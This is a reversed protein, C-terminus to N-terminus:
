RGPRASRIRACAVEATVPLSLLLTEIGPDGAPLPGLELRIPGDAATLIDALALGLAAAAAEDVALLFARHGDGGAALRVHRVGATDVHHVFVAAGRLDGAAPLLLASCQVGEQEVAAGLWAWRATVPADCRRGLDDILLDVAAINDKGHVVLVDEVGAFVPLTEPVTM